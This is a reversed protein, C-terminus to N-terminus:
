NGDAAGDKQTGLAAKKGRKGKYKNWGIWNLTLWSQATEPGGDDHLSSVPAM